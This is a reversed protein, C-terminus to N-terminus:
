RPADTGSEDSPYLVALVASQLLDKVADEPPISRGAASRLELARKFRVRTDELWKETNRNM